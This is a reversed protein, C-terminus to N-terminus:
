NSVETSEDIIVEEGRKEIAEIALKLLIEKDSIQLRESQHPPLWEGTFQKAYVV